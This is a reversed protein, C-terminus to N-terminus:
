SSRRSSQRIVTVSQGTLAELLHTAPQAIRRPTLDGVRWARTVHPKWISSTQSYGSAADLGFLYLEVDAPLRTLASRIEGPDALGDSILVVVHRMGAPATAFRRAAATFPPTFDTGSGVATKPGFNRIAHSSTSVAPALSPVAARDAFQGAAIWDDPAFLHMWRLLERVERWRASGPDNEELSSSSDVLFVVDAPPRNRASVPASFSYTPARRRARDDGGSVASSGLKGLAILVVLALLAPIVWSRSL